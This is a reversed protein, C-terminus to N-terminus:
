KNQMAFYTLIAIITKSDELRGDLCMEYAEDKNIRVVEVFEDEDPHSYTSYLDEAHFIHIVEDSYGAAPIYKRMFQMKGARLGTEEELERVACEYPDEGKGDLKGAPLELMIRGTATRYQAVFIFDNGDVPLICSAGNHRIVSRKAESGGPLAVTLENLRFIGADCVEKESILEERLHDFRNM